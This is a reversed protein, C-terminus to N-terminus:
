RTTQELLTRMAAQVEEDDRPIGNMAANWLIAAQDYFPSWEPEMSGDEAIGAALRYVDIIASLRSDLAEDLDIGAADAFAEAALPHCHYVLAKATMAFEAENRGDERYRSALMAGLNVHFADGDDRTLGHHVALGKAASLIQRFTKTSPQVMREAPEAEITPKRGFFSLKM